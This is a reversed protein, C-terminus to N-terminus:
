LRSGTVAILTGTGPHMFGLIHGVNHLASFLLLSENSFSPNVLIKPGPLVVGDKKFPTYAVATAIGPLTTDVSVQLSDAGATESIEICVNASWQASAARIATKWANSVDADFKLRISNARPPKASFRGQPPTPTLSPMLSM